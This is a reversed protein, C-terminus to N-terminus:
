CCECDCYASVSIKKLMTLHSAHCHKACHICLGRFGTFGCDFCSIWYMTGFSKGYSNKMCQDNGICDFDRSPLLNPLASLAEEYKELMFYVYSLNVPGMRNINDIEDLVLDRMESDLNESVRFYYEYGFNLYIVDLEKLRERLGHVELVSPFCSWIYLVNLHPCMDLMQQIDKKSIHHRDLEPDESDVNLYKCNVLQIDIWLTSFEIDLIEFGSVFDGFFALYTGFSISHDMDRSNLKVMPLLRERSHYFDRCTTVFAFISQPPVYSLIHCVLESIQFPSSKEM